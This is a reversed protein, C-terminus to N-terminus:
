RRGLDDPDGLDDDGLDLDDDGGLDDDGFGGGGSDTAEPVEGAAELQANLKRDFFQERQMRIIEDDTLGFIKIPLGVSVSLLRRNSWRAVDFKTRWHELEQLEAIKSPNNLSLTFSVLDDGRFGITYLHIIGM